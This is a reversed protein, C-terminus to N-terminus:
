SEAKFKEAEQRIRQWDNGYKRLLEQAQNPSLGITDVLHKIELEHGKALRGPKAQRTAM